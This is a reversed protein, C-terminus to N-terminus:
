SATRLRAPGLWNSRRLIPAGNAVHAVWMLGLGIRLLAVGWDNADNTNRSLM